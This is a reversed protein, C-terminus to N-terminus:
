SEETRRESGRNTDPARRARASPLLERRAIVAIDPQVRELIRRTFARIATDDVVIAVGAEIPGITNVIEDFAGRGIGSPLPQHQLQERILSETAATLVRLSSADNGPLRPRVEKLLRIQDVLQLLDGQNATPQCVCRIIADIETIPVREAALEQLVLTLRRIVVPKEIDVGSVHASEVLLWVEDDTLFRALHRCLLLEIHGMLVELPMGGSASEPAAAKAKPVWTAPVGTRPDSVVESVAEGEIMPLSSHPVLVHAPFVAGVGVSLGSLFIEYRASGPEARFRIGPLRVGLTSRVRTRMAEILSWVEPKLDRRNPQAVLPVLDESVSVAIPTAIPQYELIDEGLSSAVTFRRLQETLRAKYGDNAPDLHSATKLAAIAREISALTANQGVLAQALNSQLVPDTPRLDVAARYESAARPYDRLYFRINGVLNHYDADFTPGVVSKIEELLAVAADPQDEELFRHNVVDELADLATQKDSGAGTRLSGLLMEAAEDYRDLHVLAQGARAMIVGSMIPRIDIGHQYVELAKSWDGRQEYTLALGLVADFDPELTGAKKFATIAKELRGAKFHLFGSATYADSWTPQLVRAREAQELAEDLRGAESLVSSYWLCGLYRAPEGAPHVLIMREVLEHVRSDTARSAGSVLVGILGKYCDSKGPERSIAEEYHATAANIDGERRAIDGLIILPAASNADIENARVLWTSATDRDDRSVWYYKAMAVAARFLGPAMTLAEELHRLGDEQQSLGYTRIEAVTVIAKAREEIPVTPQQSAWEYLPLAETWKERSMARTWARLEDQSPQRDRLFSLDDEVLKGCVPARWENLATVYSTIWQTLARESSDQALNDIRSLLSDAIAREVRERLEVLMQRLRPESEEGIQTDIEDLGAYSDRIELAKRISELAQTAPVMPLAAQAAQLYVNAFLARIDDAQLVSRPHVGTVSM